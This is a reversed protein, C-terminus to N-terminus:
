KGRWSHIPCRISHKVYEVWFHFVVPMEVFSCADWGYINGHVIIKESCSSWTM